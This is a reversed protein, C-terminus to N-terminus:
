PGNSCVSAARDWVQQVLYDRAVLTVNAHSGNAALFTPGYVMKSFRALERKLQQDQEFPLRTAVDGAHALTPMTAGCLMALLLSFFFPRRM